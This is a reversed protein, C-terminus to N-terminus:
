NAQTTPMITLREINVRAPLAVLHAVAEAVDGPELIAMTAFTEDLWATADPETVHGQLETRVIGPEVVAVRVGQAGLEIRLNRSYHTVFAKTGCYVEFTPFLNQAGISSTNVLDAVGKEAAAKRLQPVFAAVTNLFGGINLDVQQDWLDTRVDEIKSPLMVGANNFLLDVTGLDAEIRAAAARVADADTVDVPVAVATGGDANIRDALAALRDARRALVAVKAGRGALLAATAEGLGSSAGTVVAVRGALPLVTNVASM